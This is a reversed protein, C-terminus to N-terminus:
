YWAYKNAAKIHLKFEDPLMKHLSEFAVRSDKVMYKKEDLSMGVAICGVVDDVFNGKHMLIHTRGPVDQVEWVDPFKQSSYTNCIYEGEPICSEFPTNEVWPKEITYFPLGDVVMSGIVCNPLYSREITVTFM